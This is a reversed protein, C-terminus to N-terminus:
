CFNKSIWAQAPSLDYQGAVDIMLPIKDIQDMGVPEPLIPNLRLYREGLFQRSQYDALGSGGELLIDVLNFSWQVLGWDETYVDLFRPNQGTSLSLLAVDELKQGGTPPDLAQALACVSPNCAVVGGDIYGQYIPFYTPAASTYIGVDVVKQAADSGPGPFNQFFKAKWTRIQSPSQPKNDLQFASIIVRKELEGLTLDEGFEEILAEKLPELHYKAGVLMGLDLVDELLSNTFVKVGKEEYLKRAQTPTRGAALGLALLGGTSTGAFLDVQSLFGPLAQELRELLIAMILGRIGGGDLSLIRYHAM